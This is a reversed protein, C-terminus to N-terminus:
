DFANKLDFGTQRGRAPEKRGRAAPPCSAPTPPRPGTHRQVVVKALVAALERLPAPHGLAIDGYLAGTATPRRRASELRGEEVRHIFIPANGVLPVFAAGILRPYLAPARGLAGARATGAAGMARAGPHDPM